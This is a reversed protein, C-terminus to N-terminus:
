AAQHLLCIKAEEDFLWLDAHQPGSRQIYRCHIEQVVTSAASHSLDPLKAFETAALEPQRTEALAHVRLLRGAWDEASAANRGLLAVANEFRGRRM